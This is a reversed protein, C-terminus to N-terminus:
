EEEKTEEDTKFDSDEKDSQSYFDNNKNM